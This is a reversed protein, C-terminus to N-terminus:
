LLTGPCNAAVTAPETAIVIGATETDSTSPALRAARMGVASVPVTSMVQVSSSAVNTLRVAPRAEDNVDHPMVGVRPRLGSMAAGPPKILDVQGISCPPTEVMLPVDIAAGCTAPAAARYRSRWPEMLPLSRLVIKWFLASGAGGAGPRAPM